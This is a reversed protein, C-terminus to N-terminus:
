PMDPVQAEVSAVPEWARQNGAPVLRLVFISGEPGTQELDIDGGMARAWLRGLYLGLGTGVHGARISSGPIRGFRTFLRNCGELPIGRGADRVHIQVLGDHEEWDVWVTSGSDSYKAANDVLNALIQVTRALDARACLDLPGHVEVRQDPYSGLVEAMAREVAMSVNTETPNVDPFEHELRSLLMLDDVLTKQRNASLVIRALWDHRQEDSLTTWRAELMEGYGIISTLPTRLEHSVTAVFDSRLRALDEAALRASEADSQAQFSATIDVAVGTGGTVFGGDDCEPSWWVEFVKGDLELHTSVAAGDLAREFIAVVDSEGALWSAAIREGPQPLRLGESVCLGTEMLTFIGDRTLAFVMIPAHLLVTRLRHESIKLADSMRAYERHYSVMQRFASGLQGIEDRRDRPLLDEVRLDGTALLQAAREVRRLPRVVGRALLIVVLLVAVLSAATLAM